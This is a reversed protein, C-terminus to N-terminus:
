EEVFLVKALYPVVQSANYWGNKNPGYESGGPNAVYIKNEDNAALLTLYHSNKTWRNIGNEAWACVILPKDNKLHKLIKEESLSGNDYHFGSSKINYNELLEKSMNEYNMVPYYKEQLDKPTVSKGYGSLVIAMATIGCGKRKMTKGWYKEDAWRPDYQKYETYRKGGDTDFTATTRGIDWPNSEMNTAGRVPKDVLSFSVVGVIILVLFIGAGILLIKKM